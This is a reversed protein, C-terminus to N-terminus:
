SDQVFRKRGRLPAVAATPTIGVMRRMTRSLHAQDAFGGDTAAAALPQGAAIAAAALELKRWLLWQSLSVGLQMKALSRLRSASVGAARAGQAIMSGPDGRHESFYDMAAQLHPNLACSAVGLRQELWAVLAAADMAAGGPGQRLLADLSAIASNGFYTLLARGLPSQPALYVFLIEGGGDQAFHTVGPAIYLAQAQVVADPSIITLEGAGAFALQAAAHAHLSNQDTAGRYAVWSDGFTVAGNWM